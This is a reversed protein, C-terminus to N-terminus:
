RLLEALVSLSRIRLPRDLHYELYKLVKSCIDNRTSGSLPILMSETAPAEMIAQLAQASTDAFPLIDEYSPRFGLASAFDLLFRLHFNAYDAGLENLLQIESVCWDFLGPETNDEHLGRYLVEAMFLSISNKGFSSRIGSLTFVSAFDSATHLTSKPNEAVVCDLVNLPQFFATCRSANRVLFSRRGYHESLCHLVVSKESFDTTHLVIIRDPTKM